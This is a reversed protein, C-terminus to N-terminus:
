GIGQSAEVRQTLLQVDHAAPYVVPGRPSQTKSQPLSLRQEIRRARDVVFSELTLEERSTPARHDIRELRERFDRRRRVVIADRIRPELTVEDRGVAGSLLV